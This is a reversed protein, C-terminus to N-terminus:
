TARSTAATAKAPCSMPRSRIFAGTTTSPAMSASSASGIATSALSRCVTEGRTTRVVRMGWPLGGQPDPAQLALLHSGGAVPLGFGANPRPKGQQKVPSGSLVGTAAVAVAGGALLLVVAMVPANLRRALWSGLGGTAGRTAEQRRAAAVLEARLEQLIELHEFPYTSDPM